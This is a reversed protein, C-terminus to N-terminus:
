QDSKDPKTRFNQMKEYLLKELFTTQQPSVILLQNRFGLLTWREVDARHLLMIENLEQHQGQQNILGAM